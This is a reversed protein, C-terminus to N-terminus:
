FDYKNGSTPLSSRDISLLEVSPGSSRISTIAGPNLRILGMHNAGIVTLVKSDLKNLLDRMESETLGMEEYLAVVDKLFINVLENLNNVTKTTSGIVERNLTTEFSRVEERFQAEREEVKDTTWKKEALGKLHEMENKSFTGTFDLVSQDMVEGNLFSSVETQDPFKWGEIYALRELETISLNRVVGTTTIQVAPPAIPTTTTVFTDTM